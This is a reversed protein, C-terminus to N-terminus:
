IKFGLCEKRWFRFYKKFNFSLNIKKFVELSIELKRKSEESEGILIELKKFIENFNNIGKETQINLNEIKGIFKGPILVLSIDVDIGFIKL